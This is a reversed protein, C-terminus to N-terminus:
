ACVQQEENWSAQLQKLRAAAEQAKQELEAKKRAEALRAKEAEVERQKQAAEILLRSEERRSELLAHEREAQGLPM